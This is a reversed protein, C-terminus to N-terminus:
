DAAGILSVVQNRAEELSTSASDDTCGIQWYYAGGEKYISVDYGKYHAHWAGPEPSKWTVQRSEPALSAAIKRALRAHTYKLADITKPTVVERDTARIYSELESRAERLLAQYLRVSM